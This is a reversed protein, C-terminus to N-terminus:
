IAIDQTGVRIIKEDCLRIGVGNEEDWTCDFSLGISRGGYVGAYPIKIGVLSIHELLQEAKSVEPYKEYQEINYGLQERRSKYYDLIKELLIKQLDDWKDKFMIYSDYQGEEFEGDEDGAVLIIIEYQKNLFSLKEKKYWTYDFELKGFVKNDIIM